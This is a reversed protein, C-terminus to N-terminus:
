LWTRCGRAAPHLPLTTLLLLQAQQPRLAAPWAASVRCGWGGGGVGGGVQPHNKDCYLPSNWQECDLICYDPAPKGGLGRDTGFGAPWPLCPRALSTHPSRAWLHHRQPKCFWLRGQGRAGGSEVDWPFISQCASPCPFASLDAPLPPLRAYAHGVRRLRCHLAAVCGSSRPPTATSTSTRPAGAAPLAPLPGPAITLAARGARRGAAAAALPREPRRVPGPQPHPDAGGHPQHGPLPPPVPLTLDVRCAAHWPRQLAPRM